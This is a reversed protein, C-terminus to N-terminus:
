SYQIIPLALAVILPIPPGLLAPTFSSNQTKYLDESLPSKGKKPILPFFIAIFGFVRGLSLFGLSSVMTESSLAGLIKIILASREPNCNLTKIM